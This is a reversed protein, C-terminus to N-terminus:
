LDGLGEELGEEEEMRIRFRIRSSLHDIRGRSRHIRVLREWGKNNSSNNNNSDGEEWERDM